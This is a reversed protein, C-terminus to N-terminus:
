AAEKRAQVQDLQENLRRLIRKSDENTVADWIEARESLTKTLQILDAFAATILLRAEASNKAHTQLRESAADYAKVADTGAQTCGEASARGADFAAIHVGRVLELARAEGDDDTEPLADGVLDVMVFHDYGTRREEEARDRLAAAKQQRAHEYRAAAERQEPTAGPRLPLMLTKALRSLWVHAKQEADLVTLVRDAVAKGVPTQVADSFVCRPQANRSKPHTDVYVVRMALWGPARPDPFTDVRARYAAKVGRHTIEVYIANDAANASAKTRKVVSEYRWAHYTM